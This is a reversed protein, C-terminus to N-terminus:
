PMQFGIKPKERERETEKGDRFLMGRDAGTIRGSLLGGWCMPNDNSIAGRGRGKGSSGDYILM